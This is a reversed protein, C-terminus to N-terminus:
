ESGTFPGSSISVNYLCINKMRLPTTKGIAEGWLTLARRDLAMLHQMGAESLNDLLKMGNIQIPDSFSKMLVPNFDDCLGHYCFYCRFGIEGSSKM